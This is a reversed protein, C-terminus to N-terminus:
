SRRSCWSSLNASLILDLWKDLMTLCILFSTLVERKKKKKSKCVERM